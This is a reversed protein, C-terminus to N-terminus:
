GFLIIFRHSTKLTETCLLGIKIYIAQQFMSRIVFIDGAERVVERFEKLEINGSEDTDRRSGLNESSHSGFTLM